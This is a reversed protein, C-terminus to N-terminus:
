KNADIALIRIPELVRGEFGPIPAAAVPPHCSGQDWLNKAIPSKVAEHVAYMISAESKKAKEMQTKMAEALISASREFDIQEWGDFQCHHQEFLWDHIIYGPAFDWPGLGPASWFLRPISGGDTTMEKPVIAIGDSTVYSLPNSKDPRYVFTNPAIWEVYLKGTFTGTPTRQYFLPACGGLGLVISTIFIVSLAKTKRSPHGQLILNM